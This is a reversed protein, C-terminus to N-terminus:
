VHPAEQTTTGYQGVDWGREQATAPKLGARAPWLPCDRNTCNRIVEPDRGACEWCKQRIARYPRFRCQRPRLSFIVVPGRGGSSAEVITPTAEPLSDGAQFQKLNSLAGM